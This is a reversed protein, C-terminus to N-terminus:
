AVRVYTGNANMEVVGYIINRAVNPLGMIAAGYYNGKAAESEFIIGEVECLSDLIGNMLSVSVTVGDLLFELITANLQNSINSFSLSSATLTTM